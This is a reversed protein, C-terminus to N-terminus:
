LSRRPHNHPDSPAPCWWSRRYGVMSDVRTPLGRQEQAPRGTKLTTRLSSPTKVGKRATEPQECSPPATHLPCLTFVGPPTRYSSGERWSAKPATTPAEHPLFLLQHTLGSVSAKLALTDAPPLCPEQLDRRSQLRARRGRM